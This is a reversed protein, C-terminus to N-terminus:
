GEIGGTGTIVVDHTPSDIWALEAPLASGPRKPDPRAPQIRLHGQVAEPQGDPARTVGRADLDAQYAGPSMGAPKKFQLANVDVSIVGPVGQLVRYVDSLHVPQGLHSVDFALAELIATRAAAVVEARVYAPAVAVTAELIIPVPAYNDLRVRHNPDRGAALAAGLRRLGEDTFVGGQQGAVTLHVARTLGDWVMTAQAKAVEGSATVLDELDRLSVARNFTRVTRPANRRALAITEPEAGGEAPLPNTVGLLGPPRDMPTTLANARVRGSLGVGVRYTAAVNGQGSPLTAGETGDGFQLVTSGDDATAATYVEAAPAQGYLAAVETWRVGNVMVRLSSEVGEPRASSVYTLPKKKLSLRQFRISADGDGVVEDRVTEGHSALAVNGLLV